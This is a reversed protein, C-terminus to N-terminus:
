LHSSIKSLLKQGWKEIRAEQGYPENIIVLPPVLLSGKHDRIFAGLHETARATYKYRDDGLSVILCQKGTLDVDKGHKALFATIHPNMQGELGGSNWTGSALLLLDSSRLDDATAKEARIVRTAIVDSYKALFTCLVDVVYDTNGSTSAAIITLPRPM